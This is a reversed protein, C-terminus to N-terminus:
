RTGRGVCYIIWKDGRNVNLVTVEIQMVYVYVGSLLVM